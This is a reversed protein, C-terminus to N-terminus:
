AFQGLEIHVSARLHSGDNKYGGTICSDLDKAAAEYQKLEVSCIARRFQAVAHAQTAISQSYQEIAEAYKGSEELKLAQDFLEKASTELDTQSM